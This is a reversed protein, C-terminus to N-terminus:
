QTVEDIKRGIIREARELITPGLGTVLLAAVVGAVTDDVKPNLGLFKEVLGNLFGGAWPAAGLFVLYGLMVSAMTNIIARLKRAKTPPPESLIVTLLSPVGWLLVVVAALLGGLLRNTDM